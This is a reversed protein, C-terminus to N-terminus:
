ERELPNWLNPGFSRLTARSVGYNCLDYYPCLGYATCHSTNRDFVALMDSLGKGEAQEKITRWRKVKWITERLWHDTQNVSINIIDRGYDNERAKVGIVNAVCGSVELPMNSMEAMARFAWVYGEPQRNMQLRMIERDVGGGTTKTEMVVYDNFSTRQFFGDAKGIYWFPPTDYEETPEVLVMFGLEMDLPILDTDEICFREFYGDVMEIGRALSHKNALPEHGSMHIEHKEAFRAIASMRADNEEVGSLKQLYYTTLAAHCCTGFDAGPGVKNELGIIEEGNSDTEGSPYERYFFGKRHCNDEILTLTSNDYWEFGQFDIKM